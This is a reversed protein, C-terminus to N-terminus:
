RSLKSIHHQLLITFLTVLSSISCLIPSSVIMNFVIILLFALYISCIRLMSQKSCPALLPFISHTFPIPFLLKCSILSM